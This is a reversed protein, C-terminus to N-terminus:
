KSAGNDKGLPVADLKGGGEAPDYKSQYGESRLGTTNICYSKEVSERRAEEIQKRQNDNM